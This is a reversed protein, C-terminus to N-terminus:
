PFMKMAEKTASEFPEGRMLRREIEALCERNEKKALEHLQAKESDSLYALSSGIAHAKGAPAAGEGGKADSASSKGDTGLLLPSATERVTDRAGEQGAGSGSSSTSTSPQTTTEKQKPASM